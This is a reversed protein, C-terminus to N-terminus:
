KHKSGFIVLMLKEGFIERQLDETKSPNFRKTPEIFARGICNLLFTINNFFLSVKRFVKKREFTIEFFTTGDKSLNQIKIAVKKHSVRQVFLLYYM